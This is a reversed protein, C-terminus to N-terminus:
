GRIIPQALEAVRESCRANQAAKKVEFADPNPLNTAIERKIPLALDDLRKSPKAKLAGKSVEWVRTKDPTYGLPVGKAQALEQMRKSARTSLAGRTITWEREVIDPRQKPLSLQETRETPSAKQAAISIDTQVPRCPEYDAHFRKPQSLHILRENPSAKLAANSVKWIPSSRGISFDRFVNHQRKYAPTKVEDFSTRRIVGLDPITPVIKDSTKIDYYFGYRPHATVVINGDM